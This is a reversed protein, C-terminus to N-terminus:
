QRKAGQELPGREPSAEFRGNGDGRAQRWGALGECGDAGRAGGVADGHEDNWRVLVDLLHGSVGAEEEGRELARGFGGDFGGHQRKRRQLDVGIAAHTRMETDRRRAGSGEVGASGATGPEDDGRRGREQRSDTRRLPQEARRDLDPGAPFDLRM